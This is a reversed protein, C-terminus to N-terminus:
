YPSSLKTIDSSAPGSVSLRVNRWLRSHLHSRFAKVLDKAIKVGLSEPLEQSSGSMANDGDDARTSRQGEPSLILFGLLAAVLPTKHPQETVMVRFAKLIMQEQANGKRGEEEIWKKITFLDSQPFFDEGNDTEGMKYIRERVRRAREEDARQRDEQMSGSSAMGGGGGGGGWGGGGGRSQRGRGRGRGGGRGGGGGGYPSGQQYQQYQQQQQYGNNMPTQPLGAQQGVSYLSYPDSGSQDM